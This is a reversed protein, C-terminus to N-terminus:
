RTTQLRRFNVNGALNVGMFMEAIRDAVREGYRQAFDELGAKSLSYNTTAIILKGHYKWSDYLRLLMQPFEPANGYRTRLTEAGIDDIVLDSEGGYITRLTYYKVNEEDVALKDLEDSTWFPLLLKKHLYKALMTKGRGCKGCFMLCQRPRDVLDPNNRNISYAAIWAALIDLNQETVVSRDFGIEPFWKELLINKAFTLMDSDIPKRKQERVPKIAEAYVDIM